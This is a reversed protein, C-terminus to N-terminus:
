QGMDIDDQEVTPLHRLGPLLERFLEAAMGKLAYQLVQERLPQPKDAVQGEAAAGRVEV